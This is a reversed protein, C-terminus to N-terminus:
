VHARGIENRMIYASVQTLATASSTIGGAFTVSYLGPTNITITNATTTMGDTDWYFPTSGSSVYSITNGSTYAGTSTRYIQCSPPIFESPNIMKNKVSNGIGLVQRAYSNVENKISRGVWNAFEQRGRDSNLDWNTM